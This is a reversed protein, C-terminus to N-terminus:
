QVDGAKQLLGVAALDPDAALVAGGEGVILAGGQAPVAHAEDVLVVM